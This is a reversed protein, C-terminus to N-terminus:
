RREREIPCAHGELCGFVAISYYVSDCEHGQLRVFCIPSSDLPRWKDDLFNCYDSM